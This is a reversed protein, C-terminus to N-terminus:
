VRRRTHSKARAAKAARVEGLKAAYGVNDFDNDICDKGSHMRALKLLQMMATVDEADLPAAPARRIAFYANWLTAIRSQGAVIEGHTAERQRVIREATLLFSRANKGM